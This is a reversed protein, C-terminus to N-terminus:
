SRLAANYDRARALKQKLWQLEPIFGNYREQTTIRELWKLRDKMQKINLTGEM